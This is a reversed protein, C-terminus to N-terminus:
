IQTRPATISIWWRTESRRAGVRYRARAVFALVALWGLFAALYLLTAVVNSQSIM